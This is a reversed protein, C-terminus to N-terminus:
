HRAYPRTERSGYSVREGSDLDGTHIFPMLFGRLTNDRNVVIAKLDIIHPSESWKDLVILEHLTGEIDERTKKFVYNEGKWKIRDV